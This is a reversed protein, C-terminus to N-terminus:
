ELAPFPMQWWSCRSRKPAGPFVSRPESEWVGVPPPSPMIAMPAPPMSMATAIAPPANWTGVGFTRPMRSRPLSGLPQLAFSTIRLTSSFYPVLPLTPQIKSYKPGPTFVSSTGERAVIVFMPASSPTVVLTNGDSLTVFCNRAACPRAFSQISSLASLSAAYSSTNVTSREFISGIIAAGCEGPLMTDTLFIFPVFTLWIRIPEQM